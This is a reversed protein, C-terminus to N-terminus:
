EKRVLEVVAEAHPTHPFLDFMSASKVEYGEFRQLDKALTEVNCSVYVIVKPKLRNLCIITKKNMGARPPDTIVYLPQMANLEELESLKMADYVIAKVNHQKNISINMNAADISEECNEVILVDKFKDANIIGFTGVGGFLDLLHADKTDYKELLKSVHRQMIEAMEHNNQFFGQAHYFFRKGLYEQWLMENGKLVDYEKSISSEINGPVYTVLINNVDSKLTFDSINKIAEKIKDSDLNLVFSVSTGSTACRIVAYRFTGTFSKIDFSEADTFFDRIEFLIKNIKEEAILCHGVDVIVKWEEKKRLGLGTFGNNNLSNNHHFIFDMRNRYHYEYGFFAIVPSIGLINEFEKRKKELQAKYDIDLYSCGGCQGFFPCSKKEEMFKEEM